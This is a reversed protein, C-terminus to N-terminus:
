KSLWRKEFLVKAAHWITGPGKLTVQLTPPTYFNGYGYAARGNGVEVFCAGDGAFSRVKGRGTIARVINHAVVEAQNSAFVGAVPMPQPKPTFLELEVQERIRRTRFYAEILFAAEYPAAPCKFPLGAIAVVMRGGQFAQLAEWM